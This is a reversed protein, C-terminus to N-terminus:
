FILVKEWIWKRFSIFIFKELGKKLKEDKKIKQSGIQVNDLISLSIIEDGESLQM